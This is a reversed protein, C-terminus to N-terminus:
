NVKKSLREAEALCAKLNNAVCYDKFVDNIYNESVFSQVPEYTSDALPWGQWQTLFKWGQQNKVKIIKQVIYKGDGEKEQEEPIQKEQIPAPKEKGEEEEEPSEGDSDVINDYHKLMESSVVIDGGYKPSARVTVTGVGTKLIRYPGFWQSELKGIQIKPFRHKHILVLEGERFDM